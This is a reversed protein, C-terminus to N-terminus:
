DKIPDITFTLKLGTQYVEALVNCLLGMGIGLHIQTSNGTEFM